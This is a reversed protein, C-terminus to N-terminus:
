SLEAEPISSNPTAPRLAAAGEPIVPEGPVNVPADPNYPPKKLRDFLGM